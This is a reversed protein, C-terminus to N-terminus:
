RGLVQVKSRYTRESPAIRSNAIRGDM